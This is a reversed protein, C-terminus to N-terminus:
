NFVFICFNKLCQIIVILSLYIAFIIFSLLMIFLILEKSEACKSSILHFYCEIFQKLEFLLFLSILNIIYGRRLSRIKSFYKYIFYTLIIIFIWHFIHRILQYDKLFQTILSMIIFFVIQIIILKITNM